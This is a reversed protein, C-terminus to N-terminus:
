SEVGPKRRSEATWPWWGDFTKFMTMGISGQSGDIPLSSEIGYRIRARFFTGWAGPFTAALSAGWAHQIEDGYSEPNEFMAGGGTIEFRLNRIPPLAYSVESTVGRTFRLGESDYGTIHLGSFLRPQFASFRDLDHGGWFNVDFSLRDLRKLYFAKDIGISYHLPSRQLERQEDPLGYLGASDRRAGELWLGVGYGRRQYDARVGLATTLTSPPLLYDEPTDDGSRTATYQVSPQISLTLASTLTHRFSLQFREELRRLDQEAVRGTQDSYRDRLPVASLVSDVSVQWGSKSVPWNASLLAVPGSWALDVQVGTDLFDLDFWNLGAFPLRLDGDVSGGWGAVLM